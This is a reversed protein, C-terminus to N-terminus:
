SPPGGGCEPCRDAVGRRDYGCARCHDPYARHAWNVAARRAFHYMLLTGLTLAAVAVPLGVRLTFARRDPTPAFQLWATVSALAASVCWTTAVLPRTGSMKSHRARKVWGPPLSGLYAADRGPYHFPVFLGRLGGGLRQVM